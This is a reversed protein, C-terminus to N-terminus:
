PQFVAIAGLLVLQPKEQRQWLLQSRIGALVQKVEVEKYKEEM